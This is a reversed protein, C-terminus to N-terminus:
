RVPSYLPEDRQRRRRTTSSSPKARAATSSSSSCTASHCVIPLSGEHERIRETIAVVAGLATSDLLPVFWLDVVFHRHGYRILAAVAERLRSPTNVDIEGDVLVSWGNVVHYTVAIRETRFINTRM